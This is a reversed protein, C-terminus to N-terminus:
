KANLTELTKILDSDTTDTTLVLNKYIIYHSIDTASNASLYTDLNKMAKKNSEYEFIEITGSTTKVTRGIANLSKSSIVDPTLIPKYSNRGLFNIIESVSSLEMGNINNSILSIGPNLTLVKRYNSRQNLIYLLFYSVILCIFLLAKFFKNM